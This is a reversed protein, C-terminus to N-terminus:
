FIGGMLPNSESKYIYYIAETLKCVSYVLFLSLRCSKSLVLIKVTSIPVHFVNWSFYWM